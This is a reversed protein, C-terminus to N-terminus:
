PLFASEDDFSPRAPELPVPEHLEWDNNESTQYAFFWKNAKLWDMWPILAALNRSKLYEPRERMFFLITNNCQSLTQEHIDQLRQAMFVGIIGKGAGTTSLRELGEHTAMKGAYLQLEDVFLLFPVQAHSSTQKYEFLTNVIDTLHQKRENTGPPRYLIRRDKNDIHYKMDLINDVLFGDGLLSDDHKTDLFIYIPKKRRDFISDNRLLARSFTTKGYKTQGCIITHGESVAKYIQTMSKRLPAPADFLGFVEGTASQGVSEAKM